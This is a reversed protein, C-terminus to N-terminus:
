NVVERGCRGKIHTFNNLVNPTREEPRVPSHDMLRICGLFLVLGM